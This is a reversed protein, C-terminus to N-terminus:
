FLTYFEMIWKIWMSVCQVNNWFTAFLSHGREIFPGFPELRTLSTEVAAQTGNKTTINQLKAINNTCTALKWNLTHKIEVNEVSNCVDSVNGLFRM